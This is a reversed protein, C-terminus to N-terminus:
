LWRRVRKKYGQYSPGFRKAMHEEEAGIVGWQLLWIFAGSLLVIWPSNAAMGIGAMLLAMGLYIPNRSYRFPGDEVLATSPDAHRVGTEAKEMTQIGALMFFIGGLILLPGLIVGIATPILRLPLWWTLLGGVLLLAGLVLPPPFAVAEETETPVSEAPTDSPTIESM